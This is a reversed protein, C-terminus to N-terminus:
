VNESQFVALPTKLLIWLDLGLSARRAYTIDLQQRGEASMGAKGRKTVQWLGTIGAPAVFREIAEDTTLKEAEYVPLPRNGVLSMDGKLVNILQPLEDISTNRIFTGIRTIRPDNVIKIFAKEQSQKDLLELESHWGEDSILNKITNLQVIGPTPETSAAYQNLKSVESLMKDADTRMSRLKIFGFVKYNQGVRKSTYFIPGPSELKILIAVVLLLPSLVILIISAGVIDILRKSVYYARSKQTLASM